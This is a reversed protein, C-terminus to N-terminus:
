PGAFAKINLISDDPTKKKKKKTPHHCCFGSPLLILKFVYFAKSFIVWINLGAM